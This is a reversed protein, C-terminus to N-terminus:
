PTSAVVLGEVTENVLRYNTTNWMKVFVEAGMSSVLRVAGEEAFSFTNDGGVAIGDLRTTHGGSIWEVRDIPGFGCNTVEVCCGEGEVIVVINHNRPVSFEACHSISGPISVSSTECSAACGGLSGLGVCVGAVCGIAYRLERM